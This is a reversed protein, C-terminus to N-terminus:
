WAASIHYWRAVMSGDLSYKVPLPGLQAEFHTRTLIVTGIPRPNPMTAHPWPKHGPPGLAKDRVLPQPNHTASCPWPGLGVPKPVEFRVTM